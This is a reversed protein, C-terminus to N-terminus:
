VNYGGRRLCIILDHECWDLDLYENTAEYSLGASIAKPKLGFQKCKIFYYDLDCFMRYCMKGNWATYSTAGELLENLERTTM